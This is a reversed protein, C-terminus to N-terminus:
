CSKKAVPPCLTSWKKMFADRAERAKMGDESDIIARYDRKVEARAHKPCHNMLNEQKHITCRQVDAGPWAKAAKQLGKHGDGVIVMPTRLGRDRLDEILSSWHVAAESTCLIMSVVHKTGNDDAGMAILVPVSVVRRALRVKLHIGDLYLIPYSDGSLDRESWTTFLAKLRSVVRSVASKSLHKEGLL